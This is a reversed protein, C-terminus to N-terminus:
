ESDEIVQLLELTTDLLSSSTSQLAVSWNQYVTRCDRLKSVLLSLNEERTYNSWGPLM